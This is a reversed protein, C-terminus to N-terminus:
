KAPIYSIKAIAMFDGTLAKWSRAYIRDIYGTNEPWTDRIKSVSLDYLRWTGLTPVYWFADVGYQDGYGFGFISRVEIRNSYTYLWVRITEVSSLAIPEDFVITSGDRDGSNTSDCGEGAIIKLVGSLGMFSPVWEVSGNNTGFNETPQDCIRSLEDETKFDVLTIEREDEAVLLCRVKDCEYQWDLLFYTITYVGPSVTVTNGDKGVSSNNADTVNCVIELDCKEGKGNRVVPKPLSFAEDAVTYYTEKLGTISLDTYDTSYTEEKEACGVASFICLICILWALIKKM